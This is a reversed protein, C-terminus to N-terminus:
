GVWMWGEGLDDAFWCGFVDGREGFLNIGVGAGLMGSSATAIVTMQREDHRVGCIECACTHCKCGQDMWSWVRHMKRTCCLKLDLFVNTLEVLVDVIERAVLLDLSIKTAHNQCGDLWLVIVNKLIWGHSITVDVRDVKHVVEDVGVALDGFIVDFFVAGDEAFWPVGGIFNLSQPSAEASYLIKGM